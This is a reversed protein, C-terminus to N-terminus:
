GNDHLRFGTFFPSLGSYDQFRGRRRLRGSLGIRSHSPTIFSFNLHNGKRLSRTPSSQSVLSHNSERWYSFIAFLVFLSLSLSLHPLEHVDRWFEGQENELLWKALQFPTKRPFFFLFIFKLIVSLPQIESKRAKDFNRRIHLFSRFFLDHPISIAVSFM